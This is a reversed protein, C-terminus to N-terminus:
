KSTRSLIRKDFKTIFRDFYTCELAKEFRIKKFIDPNHSENYKNQKSRLYEKSEKILMPDDILDLASDYIENFVEIDSLILAEIEYIHLLFIGKKDVVRNSNTFYLRREELKGDNDDLLGDLDRIFIVIDPKKSEYEIRLFRKTRQADLQSGNIRDLMFIFDFGLGYKKEMLHKVSQTDNPAEGVLGIVINNKLTLINGIIM